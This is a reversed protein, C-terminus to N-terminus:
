RFMFGYRRLVEGLATRSPNRLQNALRQSWVMEESGTTKVHYATMAEDYRQIAAQPYDANYHEQFVVAESPLRPKAPPTSAPWGISLGFPCFVNPLLKLLQAVEEYNNRLGGIMVTGLGFSEAALTASMGVLAADVVAVLNLDYLGTDLTVGHHDCIQSLRHLDACFLVMVPAVEIHRQNGAFAALARRTEASRVVILSYAQMNSSTPAQRAASLIRELLEDPVDRSEYTRVSARQELLKIVSPTDHSSM